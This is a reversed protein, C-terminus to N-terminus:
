EAELLDLLEDFGTENAYQLLRRRTRPPLATRQAMQELIGDEEEVITLEVCKLLIADPSNPNQFVRMRYMWGQELLSQHENLIEHLVSAETAASSLVAQLMFDPMNPITILQQDDIYGARTAAILEENTASTQLIHRALSEVFADEIGYSMDRQLDQQLDPFELLTVLAAAQLSSDIYPIDSM